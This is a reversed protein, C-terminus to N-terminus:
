RRLEKKTLLISRIAAHDIDPVMGHLDHREMFVNRIKDVVVAVQLPHASFVAIFLEDGIYDDLIISNPLPLDNGPELLISRDGGAPYFTSIRGSADISTLIFYRDTGCSYTFQIREGPSAVPEQRVVSVGTSDDVFLQLAVAGKLRNVDATRDVLLTGAGVAVILTAALALLPHRPRFRVVKGIDDPVAADPFENLFREREGRMNKVYAACYDCQHLHSAVAATRHETLDGAIFSLLTLRDYSNCRM